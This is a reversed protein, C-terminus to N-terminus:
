GRKSDFCSRVKGGIKTIKVVCVVQHFTCLLWFPLLFTTQVLFAKEKVKVLSHLYTRIYLCMVIHVTSAFSGVTSCLRSGGGGSVEELQADTITLLQAFTMKKNRFLSIYRGLKLDQLFFEM